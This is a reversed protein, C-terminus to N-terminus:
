LLSPQLLFSKMKESENEIRIILCKNIEYKIPIQLSSNRTYEVISELLNGQIDFLKLIVRGPKLNFLTISNDKNFLVGGYRMSQHQKEVKTSPNHNPPASTLIKGHKEQGLGQLASFNRPDSQWEWYTHNANPVYYTNTDFKNLTYRDTDKDEPWVGNSGYAAKHIIINNHISNNVAIYKGYAGQDHRGGQDIVNIGNGTNNNIVVFNHHVDVNQSNQVLIQSGWAWNSGEHGNGQVTNYRIIADYSIEHKIGDSSNSDVTNYEMLVNINDIDTWLGAGLNNKVINSDLVLRKTKSFKTGGGEWAWDVGSWFGNHNVTNGRILLDDQNGGIGLQGNNHVNNHLVHSGSGVIIGAGHNWRVECNKIIWKTCRADDGVAGKQVPSAYKEVILGAITVNSASGTFASATVSTEISHGDPSDAFYIKDQAYDFYWKGTLVKAKSDVHMLPINDIFLAESRDCRQKDLCSAGSHAPIEQSQQSAVWLAGEKTFSTLLRAGNLIAGADGIFTDGNKPTITQNRYTGSPLRYTTGASNSNVINQINDTPNLKVEAIGESVLVFLCFLFIKAPVTLKRVAVFDSPYTCM